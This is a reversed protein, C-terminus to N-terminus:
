TQQLGPIGTKWDNTDGGPIVDIVSFIQTIYQKLTAM